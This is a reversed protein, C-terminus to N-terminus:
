EHLDYVRHGNQQVVQDREAERLDFAAMERVLERFTVKPQWGLKNRAKSADGLLSAVEAPRFYRGDVAIVCRGQKDFGKEERGHGRWAINMGIEEAAANVFERVSYHRGTAIVFDEPVQQQLMM